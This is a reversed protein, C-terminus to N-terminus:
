HTKDILAFTFGYYSGSTLEEKWLSQIATNGAFYRMGRLWSRWVEVDIYGAKFYLYEEACLNFYDYLLQKEQNTLLLAGDKLFLENLDNNLRDYRANFDLFLCIFRETNQNHQLYLFHVFAAVSGIAPLLLEPSRREPLIFLVALVLVAFLWPYYSHQSLSFHTRM